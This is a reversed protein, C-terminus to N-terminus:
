QYQWLKHWWREGLYPLPRRFLVKEWDMRWVIAVTAAELGRLFMSSGGGQLSRERKKVQEKTRPRSTM